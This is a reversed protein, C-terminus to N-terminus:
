SAVDPEIALHHRPFIRLHMHQCMGEVIAETAKLSHPGIFGRVACRNKSQVLVGVTQKARRVNQAHIHRKILLRQILRLTFNDPRIAKIFGVNSGHTKKPGLTHPETGVIQFGM